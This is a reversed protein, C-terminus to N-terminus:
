LLRQHLEFMSTTDNNLIFADTPESALDVLAELVAATTPAAFIEDAQYYPWTSPDQFVFDFHQDSSM